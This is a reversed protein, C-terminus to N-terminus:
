PMLSWTSYHTGELVDFALLVKWKVRHLLLSNWYLCSEFLFPLMAKWLAVTNLCAQVGIVIRTICFACPTICLACFSSLNITGWYSWDIVALACWPIDPTSMRCKVSDHLYWFAAYLCPYAKASKPCDDNKTEQECISEFSPPSVRFPATFPCERLRVFLYM